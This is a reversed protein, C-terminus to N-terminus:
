RAWRRVLGDLMDGIEKEIDSEHRDLAPQMARDMLLGALNPRRLKGRRGRQRPAVYVEQQTVGIRMRGWVPGINTIQRDTLAEADRRVPEAAARLSKRLGKDLDKDANRLNRRMERFGKVEIGSAAM